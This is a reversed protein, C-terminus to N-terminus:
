FSVLFPVWYGIGLLILRYRYWYGIGISISTYLMAIVVFFGLVRHHHSHKIITNLLCCCILVTDLCIIAATLSCTVLLVLYDNVPMHITSVATQNTNYQTDSCSFIDGLLLVIWYRHINGLVWYVLVLITRVRTMETVTNVDFNYKAVVHIQHFEEDRPAGAEGYLSLLLLKFQVTGCACDTSFDALRAMGPRTHDARSRWSGGGETESDRKKADRWNDSSMSRSFEPHRSSAALDKGGRGRHASTYVDVFWKLRCCM